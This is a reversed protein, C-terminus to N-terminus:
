SESQLPNNPEHRYRTFRRKEPDFRNLGGGRTGIWLVKDRDEYICQIIDNSLSHPYNVEHFYRTTFQRKGPDFRYMGKGETGIWLMGSSDECITKVNFFRLPKKKDTIYHEFHQTLPDFRYLGRATGIWLGGDRDGHICWVEKYSVSKSNGPQHRFTTFQENERHFRNLGNNTGIWLTGSHDEYISYVLSNSLTTSNQPDNKYVKFEYGDYRNLGENTGIWMLGKHDQLICYTSSQSLGQELSIRAFRITIGSTQGRFSATLLIFCLVLLGFSFKEVPKAKQRKM